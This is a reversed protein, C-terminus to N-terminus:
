ELNLYTTFSMNPHTNLSSHASTGAQNYPLHSALHNSCRPQNHLSVESAHAHRETANACREFSHVAQSIVTTISQIVQQDREAQEQQLNLFDQFIAKVEALQKKKPAHQQSRRWM